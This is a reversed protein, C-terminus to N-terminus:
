KGNKIEIKYFNKTNESIKVRDDIRYGLISIIKNKDTVILIEKRKSSPTKLDTLFDSVKKSGKFGLPIFKDGDEWNRIFLDGVVKDADIYEINPNNNFNIKEVKEILIIKSKLNYRYGLKVEINVKESKKKKTFILYDNEKFVEYNGSILIKRGIQNNILTLIEEIKKFTPEMKLEQWLIKRVIEARLFLKEKNLLNLNLLINDDEYTVIKNYKEEIFSDFFILFDQLIRSTQFITSSLNKNISKMLDPVIKLRLYNREYEDSLNSLDKIFEIKNLELYKEIESKSLCLIPRIINENKIPIGSIAKLGKGKILNLLVTEANDDLNHATAIKNYSYKVSLEKLIKYRLVRGAEEVSIKNRKAFLNVNKQESFFPIQLQSCINESFKQDSTSDKRLLHNLHFAALKIKYKSQYKNLFKLLFVSDAGGSLAIIIRDGSEILNYEKIFKIIKQEVKKNFASIKM